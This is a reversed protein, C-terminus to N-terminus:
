EVAGRKERKITKQHVARVRITDLTDNEEKIPVVSNHGLLDTDARLNHLYERINGKKFTIMKGTVNLDVIWRSSINTYHSFYPDLNRKKMSPEASNVPSFIRKGNCLLAVKTM